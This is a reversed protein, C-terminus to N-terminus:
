VIGEIVKNTTYSSIVLNVWTFDITAHSANFIARAEHLYALGHQHFRTREESTNSANVIMGRQVLTLGYGHLARAYDLRLEQERFIQIAQEFYTDAETYNGLEALIRGLLRQARGIVRMTEQKQAEQLTQLAIKKAKILDNSLFSVTALLLKCDIITEIEVGEQSIAHQLTSKARLLLRQCVASADEGKETETPQLKCAIIAEVIRLDGLSVLAFRICRSNKIARGVRIARHLNTAAEHLYGLAQQVDALVVCCWSIHERDNVREAM